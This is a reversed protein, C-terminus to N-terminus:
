KFLKIYLTILIEYTKIVLIAYFVLNMLISIIAGIKVKWCYDKIVLERVGMILATFNLVTFCTFPSLCAAEWDYYMNIFWEDSTNIIIILPPILWGVATLLLSWCINGKLSNNKVLGTYESDENM